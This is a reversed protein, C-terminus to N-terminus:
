ILPSALTFLSASDLGLEKGLYTHIKKITIEKNSIIIFIYATHTMYQQSFEFIISIHFLPTYTVGCYLDLLTFTFTM